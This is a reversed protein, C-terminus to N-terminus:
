LQASHSGGYLLMILLCKSIHRSDDMRSILPAKQNPESYNQETYVRVLLHLNFAMELWKLNILKLIQRPPM